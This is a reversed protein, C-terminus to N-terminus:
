VRDAMAILERALPLAVREGSVIWLVVPLDPVLLPRVAGPLDGCSRGLATMTVHEHCVQRRGPGPPTCYGPVEGDLREPSAEPEARLLLVRAPHHSAACRAAEAARRLEDEDGVLAIFTLSCARMMPEKSEAAAGRWLARIAGEIERAPVAGSPTERL